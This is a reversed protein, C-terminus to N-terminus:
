IGEETKAPEDENLYQQIEEDPIDNILTQIDINQHQEDDMGVNTFVAMNGNEKLYTEIESDSLGELEKQIDMKSSATVPANESKNKSGSIFFYGGGFLIMIICAAAAYNLWKRTKSDLSIVKGAYQNRQIGTTLPNLQEFYNEPLSYINEKSIKSLLPSIEELEQQVDNSNHSKIKKLVNDAFSNFYGDPISYVNKQTINQQQLLSTNIKELIIEPLNDFYGEPVTYLNGAPLSGIFINAIIGSALNIFYGEPVTYYNRNDAQILAVAGVEKLENLININEQM